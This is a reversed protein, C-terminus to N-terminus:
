NAQKGGHLAGYPRLVLGIVVDPAGWDVGAFPYLVEGRVGLWGAPFNGDPEAWGFGWTLMAGGGWRAYEGHMSEWRGVSAFPELNLYHRPTRIARQFGLGLEFMHNHEAVGTPFFALYRYRAMPALLAGSFGLQVNLGVGPGAKFSYPVEIAPLVGNFFAPNPTVPGIPLRSGQSYWPESAGGSQAWNDRGLQDLDDLEPVEPVGTSAEGAPAAAEATPEAKAPEAKAPAAEESKSKADDDARATRSGALAAVLACAVAAGGRVRGRQSPSRRLLRNLGM